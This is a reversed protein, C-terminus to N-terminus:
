EKGNKHFQRHHSACLVIIDMPEEAGLREYTRHHVHLTGNRNCLMCSGGAREIAQQRVEKWHPSALYAQYTDYGAYKNVPEVDEGMHELIHKLGSKADYGVSETIFSISRVFWLDIPHRCHPDKDSISDAFVSIIPKSKAFAYGLEVLTGYCTLDDIYAYIIDTRDIASLCLRRIKNYRNEPRFQKIGDRFNDYRFEGGSYAGVGHEHDGHYCGHDCGVFYPGVYDHVGFIAKEMIPFEPWQEPGADSCGPWVNSRLKSVINHRWDNARIKGALYIKM